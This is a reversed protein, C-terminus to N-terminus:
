RKQKKRELLMEMFADVRNKVPGDAYDRPDVMDGELLLTPINYKEQMIKAQYPLFGTAIKCGYLAYSIIGDVKYDIAKRAILSNVTERVSTMFWCGYLYKRALSEYPKDPDMKGKSYHFFYTYSEIVSVADFKHLYNFLGLTFWPPINDFLIRLKEEGPLVGIGKDVRDKVEDRLSRAFDVAQQTGAWQVLPMLCSLADESGMPSPVAKRLNQMEEFLESAEGSLRVVERLKDENLKQGTANGIFELAGKIQKVTYDLYHQELVDLTMRPPIYPVDILYCPIKYGFIRETERWWKLHFYCSGSDALMFDPIPLGGGPYAVDKRDKGELLYGTTNRFYGCLERAYGAGEAVELLPPTMQKAACAANFNEPFVPLVNDYVWCLDVLGAGTVYCVKKSHDQAVKNAEAYYEKVMPYVLKTAAISKVSKDTKVQSM